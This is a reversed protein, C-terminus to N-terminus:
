EELRAMLGAPDLHAVRWAPICAGTLAAGLILLGMQLAVDSAPAPLGSTIAALPLSTVDNLMLGLGVGAAAVAVVRWVVYFVIHRRRAGVARRIALELMAATVWQYMCIGTGLTALILILGGGLSLARAFWNLPAAYRAWHDAESGLSRVMGVTNLSPEGDHRRVLLEATSPPLQLVSAYVVYSPQLAGGLALPQTDEVMGVVVFSNKPGEGLQLRRGLANGSEFHDRALSRNIVVARPASWDDTTRLLRGQNLQVNMARFTDPSVSSIAVPVARLPTAIGGQSCRGCETIALDVTGLGALARSSASTLDFLDAVRSQRILREIQQSREAPTSAMKLDFVQAQGGQRPAGGLQHAKSSLQQAGLLVSFSIGLQVAAVVLGLPV